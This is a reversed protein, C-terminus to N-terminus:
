SFLSITIVSYSLLHLFVNTSTSAYESEFSGEDEKEEDDRRVDDDDDNETTTTSGPVFPLESSSGTEVLETTGSESATTSAATTMNTTATPGETTTTSRAIPQISDSQREAQYLCVSLLTSKPKPKSIHCVNIACGFKTNNPQVIERYHECPGDTCEGNAPNYTKVQALLRVSWERLLPWDLPCSGVNNGFSTFRPDNPESRKCTKAWELALKELEMSYTFPTLKQGRFEFNNRISM